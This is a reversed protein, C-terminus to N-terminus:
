NAQQLLLFTYIRLVIPSMPLGQSWSLTSQGLTLWSPSRRSTLRDVDAVRVTPRDVDSVGITSTQCESPWASFNPPHFSLM